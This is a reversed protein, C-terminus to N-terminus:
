EQKHSIVVRQLGSLDRVIKSKGGFLNLMEALYNGQDEACELMIAGDAKLHKDFWFESLFRYFDYGDKGGDLATVPEKLVECELAKIDDSRIYPPNSVILDFSIGDFLTNDFLDGNIPKINKIENLTINKKLYSFAVPYKEVAYILANPFLKALSIAICGSGSCFDVIVPQTKNQLFDKANDVLIETEPRPILVGEGVYFDNGYFEWKGIIYQLPEGDTRRKILKLYESKDDDTVFKSRSLLFQTTDLGLSFELLCRADFEFDEKHAEKLLEVGSQYLENITMM